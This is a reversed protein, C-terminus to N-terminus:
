PTPSPDAAFAALARPGPHVRPELAPGRARASGADGLPLGLDDAIEAEREAMGLRVEAAFARAGLGWTAVQDTVGVPTLRYAVRRAKLTTWLGAGAGAAFWLARGIM